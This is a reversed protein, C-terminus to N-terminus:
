HVHMFMYPNMVVNCTPLCLSPYQCLTNMIVKYKNMYHSASGSYTELELMHTKTSNLALEVTLM